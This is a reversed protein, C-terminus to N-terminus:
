KNGRAEIAVAIRKAAEHWSTVDDQDWSRAFREILELIAAREAAVADDLAQRTVVVGTKLEARLKEIEDAAKEMADEYGCSPPTAAAKRLLEVIDTMETIM